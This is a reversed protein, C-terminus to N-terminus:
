QPLVQSVYVLVMLIASPSYQYFRLFIKLMGPLFGYELFRRQLRLAKGPTTDAHQAYRGGSHSTKNGKTIVHRSENKDDADKYVDPFATLIPVDEPVELVASDLYACGYSVEPLHYFLQTLQLMYNNLGQHGYCLSGLWVVRQAVGITDWREEVSECGV